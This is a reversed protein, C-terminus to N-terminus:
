QERFLDLFKPKLCIDVMFSDRRSSGIINNHKDMFEDLTELTDNREDLPKERFVLLDYVRPLVRKVKWGSAPTWDRRFHNKRCSETCSPYQKRWPLFSNRTCHCFNRLSIPRPNIETDPYHFLAPTFPIFALFRRPTYTLRPKVHLASSLLTARTVQAMKAIISNFCFGIAELNFCVPNSFTQM